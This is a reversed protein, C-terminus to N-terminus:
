ESGPSKSGHLLISAVHRARRGIHSMSLCVQTGALLKYGVGASKSAQWNLNVFANEACCFLATHQKGDADVIVGAETHHESDVFLRTRIIGGSICFGTETPRYTSTLPPLVPFKPDEGELSNLASANLKVAYLKVKEIKRDSAITTALVGDHLFSQYEIKEDYPTDRLLQRWWMKDREENEPYAFLLHIQEGEECAFFEQEAAPELTFSATFQKPLQQIVRQLTKLIAGETNDMGSSM